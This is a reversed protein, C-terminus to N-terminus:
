QLHVMVYFITVNTLIIYFVHHFFYNFIIMAVMEKIFNYLSIEKSMRLKQDILKNEERLETIRQENLMKEHKLAFESENNTETSEKDINKNTDDDSIAEELYLTQLESERNISIKRLNQWYSNRYNSKEDNLLNSLEQKDRPTKEDTKIKKRYLKPKVEMYDWFLLAQKPNNLCYEAFAEHPNSNAAIYCIEMIAFKKQWVDSTMNNKHDCWRNQGKIIFYTDSSNWQHVDVKTECDETIGKFTVIKQKTKQYKDKRYSNKLHYLFITGRENQYIKSKHYENHENKETDNM